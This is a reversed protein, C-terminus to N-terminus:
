AFAAVIADILKQNKKSKIVGLTWPIIELIKPSDKVMLGNILKAAAILECQQKRTPGGLLPVGQKITWIFLGIGEGFEKRKEENKTKKIGKRIALTASVLLKSVEKSLEAQSNSKRLRKMVEEKGINLFHSFEIEERHTSIIM